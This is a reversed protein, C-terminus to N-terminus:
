AESRLGIHPTDAVDVHFAFGIHQMGFLNGSIVCFALFFWWFFFCRLAEPTQCISPFSPDPKPKM